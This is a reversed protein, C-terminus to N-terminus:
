GISIQIESSNLDIRIGELSRLKEGPVECADDEVPLGPFRGEERQEGRLATRMRHREKDRTIGGPRWKEGTGGGRNGADLGDVGGLESQFKESRIEVDKSKEEVM